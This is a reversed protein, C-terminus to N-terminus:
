DKSYLFLAKVNIDAPTLYPIDCETRIKRIEEM